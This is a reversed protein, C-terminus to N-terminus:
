SKQKKRRIIQFRKTKKILFTKKEFEIEQDRKRGGGVGEMDEGARRGGLEM